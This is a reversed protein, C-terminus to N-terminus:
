DYNFQFHVFLRNPYAIFHKPFLEQATRASFGRVNVCWTCFNDRLLNFSNFFDSKTVVNSFAFDFAKCVCHKSGPVGGVAKNLEPCRYGSTIYIGPFGLKDTIFRYHNYLFKANSILDAPIENNIGLKTATSSKALHELFNECSLPKM